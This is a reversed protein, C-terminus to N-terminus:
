LKQTNSKRLSYIFSIFLLYSDQLWRVASVTTQNQKVAAANCTAWPDRALWTALAQVIWLRPAISLTVTWLAEFTPALTSEVCTSECFMLVGCTFVYGTCSDMDASICPQISNIDGSMTHRFLKLQVWSSDKREKNKILVRREAAACHIVM